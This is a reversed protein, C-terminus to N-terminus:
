WSTVWAAGFGQSFFAPALHAHVVRDGAATQARVAFFTALGASVVGLGFCIDAGVAQRQAAQKLLPRQSADFTQEFARAQSRASFGLVVGAIVAAGSVSFLVISPVLSPASAQQAPELVVPARTRERAAEEELQRAKERAAQETAAQAKAEREAASAAASAAAAQTRLQDLARASKKVTEADTGQADLYRQYFRIAQEDNGGRQYGRAINFLLAPVPNIAHAQSLLEAAEFYRGEQYAKEGVRNLRSFDSEAPPAARAGFAFLTLLLGVRFQSM